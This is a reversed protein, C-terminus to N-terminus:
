RLFKDFVRMPEIYQWLNNHDAGEVLLFEKQTTQLSDYLYQAREYPIVIDETGHVITVMGQFESLNEITNYAEQVMLRTPYFWYHHAALNQLTDFPTILLLATPPKLSAHYGAVGSGISEGLIRIESFQKTELYAIVNTVDQRIRNHTPYGTGDGYGSYSVLVPSWGASEALIAYLIRDCVTGANGTYIVLARDSVENVFLRTDNTISLVAEPYEPCSDFTYNPSHYIFQEQNFFLYAGFSIYFLLFFALAIINRSMM